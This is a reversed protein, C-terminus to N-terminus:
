VCAYVIDKWAMGRPARPSRRAPTGPQTVVVSVSQEVITVTVQALPRLHYCSPERFAATCGLVLIPQSNSRCHIDQEFVCLGQYCLYEQVCM